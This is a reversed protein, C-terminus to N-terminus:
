RRSRGSTSREGPAVPGASCGVRRLEVGVAERAGPVRRRRGDSPGGHRVRRRRDPAASRIGLVEPVPRAQRPVLRGEHEGDCRAIRRHVGEGPRSDARDSRGVRRGIGQVHAPCGRGREHDGERARRSLRSPRGAAVGRLLRDPQQVGPGEGGVLQRHAAGRIADRRLRSGPLGRRRAGPDRPQCADLAAGTPAVPPGARDNAPPSCSALTRELAHSARRPLKPSPPLSSPCGQRSIVRAGPLADIRARANM